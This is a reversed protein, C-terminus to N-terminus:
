LNLKITFLMVDKSFAKRFIDDVSLIDISQIEYEGFKKQSSLKRLIYMGIFMKLYYGYYYPKNMPLPSLIYPLNTRTPRLPIDVLKGQYFLYRDNSAPSEKHSLLVQDM